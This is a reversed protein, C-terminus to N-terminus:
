WVSSETRACCDGHMAHMIHCCMQLSASMVQFWVLTSRFPRKFFCIVRNSASCCRLFCTIVKGVNQWRCVSCFDVRAMHYSAMHYIMHYNM